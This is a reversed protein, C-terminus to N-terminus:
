TTEIFLCKNLWFRLREDVGLSTGLLPFRVALKPVSLPWRGIQSATALTPRRSTGQSLELRAYSIPGALFVVPRKTPWIARGRSGGARKFEPPVPRQNEGAPSPPVIWRAFCRVTVWKSEPPTRKGEAHRHRCVHCHHPGALIQNTVAQRSGRSGALSQLSM